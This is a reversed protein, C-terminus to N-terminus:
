LATCSCRRCLKAALGGVTFSASAPGIVSDRGAAGVCVPRPAGVRMCGQTIHTCCTPAGLNSVSVYAFNNSVNSNRIHTTSCGKLVGGDGAAVGNYHVLSDTIETQVSCGEKGCVAYVVGSYESAINYAVEAGTFVITQAAGEDISVVGGV